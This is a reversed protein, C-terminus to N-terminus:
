VEGRQEVVLRAASFDRRREQQFVGDGIDRRQVFGQGIDDGGSRLGRCQGRGAAQDLPEVGQQDDDGIIDLIRIGVIGIKNQAQEAVTILDHLIQTGPQRRAGARGRFHLIRQEAHRDQELAHDPQRAADDDVHILGLPRQGGVSFGPAQLRRAAGNRPPLPRLSSIM